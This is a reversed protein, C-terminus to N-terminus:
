GPRAQEDNGRLELLPVKRELADVVALLVKRKM